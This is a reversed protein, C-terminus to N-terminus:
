NDTQIYRGVHASNAIMMLSQWQSCCIILNRKNDNLVHGSVYEGVQEAHNMMTLMLLVHAGAM